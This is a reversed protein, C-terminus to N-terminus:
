NRAAASRTHAAGLPERETGGERDSGAAGGRVREPVVGDIRAQIPFRRATQWIAAPPREFVGADSTPGVFVSGGLVAIPLSRIAVVILADIVDFMAKGEICTRESRDISAGGAGTREVIGAKQRRAQKRHL